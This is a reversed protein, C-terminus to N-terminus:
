KELRYKGGNAKVDRSFALVQRTGNLKLLGEKVKVRMLACEFAFDFLLPSLVNGLKLGYQVPFM